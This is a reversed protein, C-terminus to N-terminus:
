HGRGVHRPDQHKKVIKLLEINRALGRIARVQAIIQRESSFILLSRAYKVAIYIIRSLRELKWRVPRAKYETVYQESYLHPNSRGYRYARKKIGAVSIMGPQIHHGVVSKPSYLMKYGDRKLEALFSTESGMIYMGPRPGISEDFRRGKAFVERRFWMNPSFPYSTPTQKYPREPEGYDHEAFGFDRVEQSKAWGPIEQAPWIVYITGGFVSYDPWRESIAANAKLWDRQPTVDDDTFVVLKGLEVESLARNRAANQGPEQEFVWRVPLRDAFSEVVERTHDSSGNDAVIIEVNLGDRDVATMDELTQRLIEARNRTAIIITIDRESGM